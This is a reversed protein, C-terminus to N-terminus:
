ANAIDNCAEPQDSEPEEHFHLQQQPQQPGVKNQNLKVTLGIILPVQGCGYAMMLMLIVDQKNENLAPLIFTGAGIFFIVSTLFSLMTARMPITDKGQESQEFGSKWPVLQIEGSEDQRQKLFRKLGLDGAIGAVSVSLLWVQLLWGTKFASDKTEFGSCTAVMGPLEFYAQLAFAVINCTFNLTIALITGTTMIWDKPYKMNKTCWTIYFRSLSIASLLTQCGPYVSNGVIMFYTCVPKSLKNFIVQCIFLLTLNFYVFVHHFCLGLLQGKIIKKLKLKTFVYYCCAASVVVGIASIAIKLTGFQVPESMKAHM